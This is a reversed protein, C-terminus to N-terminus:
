EALEGLRRESSTLAECEADLAAYAHGFAGKFAAFDEIARWRDITLYRVEDGVARFLDTGLYGEAHSFLRAWTGDSRYAAEFAPVQEPTVVYEWVVAYM